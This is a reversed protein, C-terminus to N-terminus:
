LPRRSTSRLARRGSGSGWWKWWGRESEARLLHELLLRRSIGEVTLRGTPWLCQGLKECRLAQHMTLRVVIPQRRM